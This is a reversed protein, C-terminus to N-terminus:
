LRNHNLIPLANSWCQSGLAWGVALTGFNAWTEALNQKTHSARPM